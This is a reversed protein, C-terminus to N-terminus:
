NFLKIRLIIIDKPHFNDISNRLNGLDKDTNCLGGGENQVLKGHSSNKNLRKAGEIVAIGDNKVGGKWIRRIFFLSDMRACIVGAPAGAGETISCGWVAGSEGRRRKDPVGRPVERGAPWLASAGFCRLFLLMNEPTPAKHDCFRFGGPSIQNKTSIINVIRQFTM